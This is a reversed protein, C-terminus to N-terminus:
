LGKIKRYLESMFLLETERIHSRYYEPSTPDAAYTSKVNGIFVGDLDYKGTSRDYATTEPVYQM